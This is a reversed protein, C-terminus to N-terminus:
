QQILEGKRTRELSLSASEVLSKQSVNREMNVAEIQIREAKYQIARRSRL